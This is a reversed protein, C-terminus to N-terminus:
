GVLSQDGSGAQLIVVLAATALIALDVILVWALFRRTPGLLEPLREMLSRLSSPRMSPLIDCNDSARSAGALAAPERSLPRLGSTRHGKRDREDVQRAE